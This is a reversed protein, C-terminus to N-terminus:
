NQLVIMMDNGGDGNHLAKGKNLEYTCIYIYTHLYIFIFHNLNERMNKESAHGKENQSSWIKYTIHNEGTNKNM